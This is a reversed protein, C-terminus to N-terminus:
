LKYAAVERGEKIAVLCQEGSRPTVKYEKRGGEMYARAEATGQAMEEFLKSMTKGQLRSLVAAFEFDRLLHDGMFLGVDGAVIIAAAFANGEILDLFYADSHLLGAKRRPQHQV